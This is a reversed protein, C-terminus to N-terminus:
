DKHTHAGASANREVDKEREVGVAILTSDSCKKPRYLLLHLPVGGGM